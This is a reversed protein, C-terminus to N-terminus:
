FKFNLDLVILLFSQHIFSIFIVPSVRSTHESLLNSRISMQCKANSMQCKVNSEQLLLQMSLQTFFRFFTPASTFYYMMVLLAGTPDSLDISQTKRPLIQTKRQSQTFRAKVALSLKKILNQLQSFCIRFSFNVELPPNSCM